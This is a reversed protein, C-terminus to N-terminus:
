AMRRPIDPNTGSSRGELAERLKRALERMSIPKQVFGVVGESILERVDEGLGYGSLILVRADPDMEKLRRYLERGGMRPMVMDSLVLD